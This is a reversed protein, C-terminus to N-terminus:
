RFALRLRIAVGELLRDRDPPDLARAFRDVNLARCVWGLRLATAFADELEARSALTTFPELYADRFRTTDVSGEVDDLGWSINGELTVSMTFFPHSVCADGWDFFLYGGNRVFVQGDHLDDHQVTEPLRLAALQSCLEDVRPATGAFEPSARDLLQEYAPALLDLRRDPTGLAVADDAAHALDLELQSYLPLADLWRDFSREREVLERLREGGDAMLLWGREGDSALLGPVVDPRNRSIIEVLGVEHGLLPIAAKFWVPGDSTPVRLVTAWPRVHPQEVPGDAVLGLRALQAHIWEGAEDLWAPETWQAM